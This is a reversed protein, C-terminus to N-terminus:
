PVIEITTGSQWPHEQRDITLIRPLLQIEHNFLKFTVGGPKTILDLSICQGFPVDFPVPQPEDFIIVANTPPASQRPFTIKLNAINLRPENIILVPPSNTGSSTFSVRWPGHRTLQYEILHFCVLYVAVTLVFAIGIKKLPLGPKM